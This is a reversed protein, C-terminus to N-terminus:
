VEMIHGDINHGLRPLPPQAIPQSEVKKLHKHLSIETLRKITKTYLYRLFILQYSSKYFNMIKSREQIRTFNQKSYYAFIISTVDCHM